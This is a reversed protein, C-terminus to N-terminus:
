FLYGALLGKMEAVVAAREEATEQEYAYAILREGAEIAVRLKLDLAGPDKMGLRWMIFWKVLSAPGADPMAQAARAGASIHRGLALTRFDPHADLYAVYGNIVRELFAPGDSLVSKAMAGVLSSRFADMHRVAIADLITQKDPFFRYLGGISIGAEAAIRSTTIEELPVKTLLASASSLIHNVTDTSREQRPQRRVAVAPTEKPSPGSMLSM